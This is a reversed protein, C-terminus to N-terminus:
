TQTEIIATRRVGSPIACRESWATPQPVSPNSVESVNHLYSSTGMDSGRFDSSCPQSGSALRLAERGLALHLGHLPQHAALAELGDRTINANRNGPQGLPAVL